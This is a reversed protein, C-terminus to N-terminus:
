QMDPWELKRESATLLDASLQKLQNAGEPSIAYKAM